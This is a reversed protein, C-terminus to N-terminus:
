APVDRRMKRQRAVSAAWLAWLLIALLIFAAQWVDLHMIDFAKKWYVNTLFLSIIRIQNIILLLLTGVAAASLRSLFPAPSALVASVFLAIPAAADCGREVSISGRDSVLARGRVEMDDYGFRHVVWGSLEANKQLYWPFFENEVRDSTTALYYASMLVGFVVLFKLDRGHTRM